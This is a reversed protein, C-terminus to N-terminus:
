NAAIAKLAALCILHPVSEAKDSLAEVESLNHVGPGLSKNLLWMTAMKEGPAKELCYGWGLDSLKEVAEWAAAMDTSYYPVPEFIKTTKGEDSTMEYVSPKNMVKEAILKDLERGPNM